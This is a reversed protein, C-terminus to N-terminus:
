INQIAEEIQIEVMDIIAADNQPKLVSLETCGLVVLDDKSYQNLLTHYQKIMYETETENYIHQRVEDIFFMDDASPLLVAIDNTEFHSRIYDSQMSHLSGFLVIKNVKQSKCKSVTLHVPHLIEKSIMLRDITEHLTINPVLISTIDLKEIENLYTLVVADLADSVNPLLPNIEYFNTNLLLFPCTSYGGKKLHFLRNLEKLYYLTTRSGLGLIALKKPKM